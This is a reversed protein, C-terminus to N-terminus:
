LIVEKMTPSKIIGYKGFIKLRSLTSNGYLIATLVATNEARATTTSALFLLFDWSRNRRFFLYAKVAANQAIRFIRRATKYQFKQTKQRKQRHLPISLKLLKKM